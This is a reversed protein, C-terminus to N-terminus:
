LPESWEGLSGILRTDHCQGVRCTDPCKAHKPKTCHEMLKCCGLGSEGLTRLWRSQPFRRVQADLLPGYCLASGWASLKDGRGNTTLQSYDPEVASLSTAMKSGEVEGALSAVRNLHLRSTV